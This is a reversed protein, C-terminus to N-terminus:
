AVSSSFNDQYVPSAIEGSVRPFTTNYTLKESDSINYIRICGDDCAIALRTYNTDHDGHIEVSDNGDGDHESDSNEDDEGGNIRPSVHGNEYVKTEKKINFQSNNCPEVAM